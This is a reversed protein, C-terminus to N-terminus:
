KEGVSSRMQEAVGRIRGASPTAEVQDEGSHFTKKKKKKGGRENRRDHALRATTQKEWMRTHANQQIDSSSSPPKTSGAADSPKFFPIKTSTNRHTATASFREEALTRHAESHAVLKRGSAQTYIPTICCEVCHTLFVSLRASCRQAREASASAIPKESIDCSQIRLAVHRGFDGLHPVSALTTVSFRAFSLCTLPTSTVKDRRNKGCLHWVFRRPRSITLVFKM